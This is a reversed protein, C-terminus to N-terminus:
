VNIGGFDDCDQYREAVDLIVLIFDEASLSLPM